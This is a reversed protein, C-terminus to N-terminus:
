NILLRSDHSFFSNNRERDVQTTERERETKPHQKDRFLFALFPRARFKRKKEQRTSSIDQLLAM